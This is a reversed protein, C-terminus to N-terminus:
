GALRMIKIPTLIILRKMKLTLLQVFLILMVIATAITAVATATIAVVIIRISTTAAHIKQIFIFYKIKNNIKYKM